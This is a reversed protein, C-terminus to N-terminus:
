PGARPVPRQRHSPLSVAARRSVPSGGVVVVVPGETFMHTVIRAQLAAIGPRNTFTVDRLHHVLQRRRRGSRRRRHPGATVRLMSANPTDRGLGLGARVEPDADAACRAIQALSRAGGLVATLCLALLVGLRYRRGRMHRPDPM